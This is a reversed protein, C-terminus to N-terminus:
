HRSNRPISPFSAPWIRGRGSGRRPACAWVGPTSRALPRSRLALVVGRGGSRTRVGVKRLRVKGRGLAFDADAFRTEPSLHRTSSKCMERSRLKFSSNPRIYRLPPAPTSSGRGLWFTGRDPRGQPVTSVAAKLLRDGRSPTFGPLGGNPSVQQSGRLGTSAWFSFSLLPTCILYPLWVTVPDLCPSLVGPSAALSCGLHCSSPAVEEPFSGPSILLSALVM